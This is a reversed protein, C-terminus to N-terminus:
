LAPDILALLHWKFLAGGQVGLLGWRISIFRGTSAATVPPSFLHAAADTQATPCDLPMRGDM